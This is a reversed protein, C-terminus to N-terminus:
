EGVLVQIVAGLNLGTGEAASGGNRAIELAGGSGVLAVLRGPDADGYTRVVPLETGDPLRVEVAGTLHEPGLDTILNGFRDVDIVRGLWRGGADLRPGSAPALRVPDDVPTGISDVADGRLLAAAAPAFVDRGHFTSSPPGPSAVRVQDIALARAGDLRLLPTLLGNDPGVGLLDGAQVILPRRDTGVGPDVVALVVCPRPLYALSTGLARAGARVDQPRVGHTLDVMPTGPAVALVVAKMQGVYVDDHGFDTLLFLPTTM